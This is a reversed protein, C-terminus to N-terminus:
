GSVMSGENAMRASLKATAAAIAVAHPDRGCAGGVNSSDPDVIPVRYTTL